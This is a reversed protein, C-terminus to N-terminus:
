VDKAGIPTFNLPITYMSIGLISPAFPCECMNRVCSYSNVLALSDDEFTYARAELVGLGLSV